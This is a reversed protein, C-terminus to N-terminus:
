GRYAYGVADFDCAARAINYKGDKDYCYDNRGYGSCANVYSSCAVLCSLKSSTKLIYISYIIHMCIAMATMSIRM